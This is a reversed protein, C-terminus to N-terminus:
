EKQLKPAAQEDCTAQLQGFVTEAQLLEADTNALEVELQQRKRRLYNRVNLAQLTADHLRAMDAITM